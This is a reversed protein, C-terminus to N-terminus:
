TAAKLSSKVNRGRLNRARGTLMSFALRDLAATPAECAIFTFYSLIFCWVLVGFGVTARNFEAFHVRELFKNVPGGRGTSCTLMIWALSISWLIRDFFALLIEVCQTTPNEDLYWPLKVFVCFLGCSVSICWGALQFTKSITRDQFDAVILCTMCGSFYCVAHYFPKAYYDNFTSLLRPLDPFPMVLFPPLHLRAM